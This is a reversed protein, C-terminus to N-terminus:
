RNAPHGEIAEEAVHKLFSIPQSEKSSGETACQSNSTNLAPRNFMGKVPKQAAGFTFGSAIDDINCVDPRSLLLATVSGTVLSPQETISKQFQSNRQTSPFNADDVAQTDNEAPVFQTDEVRSINSDPLQTDEEISEFQTDEVLSTCSEPQRTGLQSEPHGDGIPSKAKGISANQPPMFTPIPPSSLNRFDNDDHYFSVLQSEPEEDAM